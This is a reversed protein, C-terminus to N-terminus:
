INKTTQSASRTHLLLCVQVRVTRHSPVHTTISTLGRPGCEVDWELLKQCFCASAVLPFPYFDEVFERGETFLIWIHRKGCASTKQCANCVCSLTEVGPPKGLAECLWSGTGPGSKLATSTGIGQPAPRLKRGRWGGDGPIEGMRLLSGSEGPSLLM